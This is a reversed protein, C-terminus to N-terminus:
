PIEPEITPLHHSILDIRHDPRQALPGDLRLRRWGRRGYASHRGSSLVTPFGGSVSRNVPIASHTVHLMYRMVM